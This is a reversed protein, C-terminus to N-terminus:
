VTTPLGQMLEPSVHGQTRFCRAERTAWGLTRDRSAFAAGAMVMMMAAMVAAVTMVLLIRRM